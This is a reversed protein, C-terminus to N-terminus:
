LCNLGGGLLLAMATLSGGLLFYFWREQNLITQTLSLKEQM